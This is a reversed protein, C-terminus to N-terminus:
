LISLSSIYHTGLELFGLYLSTTERHSSLTALVKSIWIPTQLIRSYHCEIPIIGYELIIPTQVLVIAFEHNTFASLARSRRFTEAPGSFSVHGYFLIHGYFSICAACGVVNGIRGAKSNSLSTFQYINFPQM